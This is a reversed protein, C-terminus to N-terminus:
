KIIIKVKIKQLIIIILIQFNIEKILKVKRMKEKKQFHMKKKKKKGKKEQQYHKILNIFQNIKKKM